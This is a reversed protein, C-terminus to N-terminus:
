SQRPTLSCWSDVLPAGFLLDCFMGRIVCVVLVKGRSIDESNFVANYCCCGVLWGALWDSKWGLLLVSSHIFHDWWVVLVSYVFLRHSLSELVHYEALRVVYLEARAWRLPCPRNEILPAVHSPIEVPPACSVVTDLGTNGFASKCRLKHALTTGSHAATQQGPATKGIRGILRSLTLFLSNMYNSCHSSRTSPRAGLDSGKQHPRTRGGRRM